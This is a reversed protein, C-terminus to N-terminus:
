APVLVMNRGAYALLREHAPRGADAHVQPGFFGPSRFADIGGLAHMLDLLQAALHQDIAHQQGTAVALDLGHVVVETLHIVAAMSAPLTAFAFTVVGDLVDPRNWAQRDARAAAAYAGAPDTGLHDRAPDDGVHHGALLAPFALIGGVLHNTLTHVDWDHCPTPLHWQEDTVGRVLAGTATLVHQIQTALDATM